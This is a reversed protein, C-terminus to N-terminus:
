TWLKLMVLLIFEEEEFRKVEEDLIDKLLKASRTDLRESLEKYNPFYSEVLKAKTKSKKKKGTLVKPTIPLKKVEMMLLTKLQSDDLNLLKGDIIVKRKRRVGGIM